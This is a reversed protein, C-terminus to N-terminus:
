TGDGDYHQCGNEPGLCVCLLSDLIYLEPMSVPKFYVWKSFSPQTPGVLPTQPFVQIAREAQM